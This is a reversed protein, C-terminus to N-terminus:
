HPQDHALPRKMKCPGLVANREGSALLEFSDALYPIVVSRSEQTSEQLPTAAKPEPLKNGGSTVQFM